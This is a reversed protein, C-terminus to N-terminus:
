PKWNSNEVHSRSDLTARAHNSNCCSKESFYYDKRNNEGIDRSSTNRRQRNFFQQKLFQYKWKVCLTLFKQGYWEM